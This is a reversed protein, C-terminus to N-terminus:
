ACLHFQIFICNQKDERLARTKIEGRGREGRRDNGREEPHGPKARIDMLIGGMEGDITLVNRKIWVFNRGIIVSGKDRGPRGKHCRDVARRPGRGSEGRAGFV